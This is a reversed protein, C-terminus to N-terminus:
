PMIQGGNIDLIQGTIYSSCTHSAFFLFAPAVEDSHGFRKMPINEAIRARFEDSKDAHFATDIVGPSIINFRIGDQTFEKVWSRNMNHLWAKSAAYLSTGMGGGEHGVISGTSIVSATQGHTKVSHRLHPIAYKTMMLASRGNLDMVHDFFADDINELGQRGGLGGTNNILVDIGGFHNVFAEVLRSCESSQTLDAQFYAVNAGLTKFEALLSAGEKADRAGCIGVSAGQAAFAKAAALGIGASSGTILVRRGQLDTFM